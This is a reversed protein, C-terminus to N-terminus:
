SVGDGCPLTIKFSTIAVTDGAVITVANLNLDAGSTGINGQLITTPVTTAVSFYGVASANGTANTDSTIANATATALGNSTASTSAPFPTAGFTLTSALSGSRATTTSAPQAGTYLKLTASATVLATLADLSAKAGIISMVPLLAM